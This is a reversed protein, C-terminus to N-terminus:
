LQNQRQAGRGGGRKRGDSAIIIENGARAVQVSFNLLGTVVVV